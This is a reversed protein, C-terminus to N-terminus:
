QAGGTMGPFDSALDRLKQGPTQSKPTFARAEAWQQMCWEVLEADTPKRGNKAEYLDRLFTKAAEMLESKM